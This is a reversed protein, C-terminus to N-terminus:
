IANTGVFWSILIVVFGFVPTYDAHLVYLMRWNALFGFTNLAVLSYAGKYYFHLMFLYLPIITLFWAKTMKRTIMTREHTFILNAKRTKYINIQEQMQRVEEQNHRLEMKKQNKLQEMNEQAVNFDRLEEEYRNLIKDQDERLMKLRMSEDDDDDNCAFNQDPVFLDVADDSSFSM